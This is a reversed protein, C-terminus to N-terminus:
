AEIEIEIHNSSRPLLKISSNGNIRLYRRGGTTEIGLGVTVANHFGDGLQFGILTYKPLYTKDSIGELIYTDTEGGTSTNQAIELQRQLKEIEYQADKLQRQAWVPLKSIDHTKNAM